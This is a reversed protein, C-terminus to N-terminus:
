SLQISRRAVSWFAPPEFGEHRVVDSCLGSQESTKKHRRCFLRCGGARKSRRGGAVRQAPSATPHRRQAATKDAMSLIDIKVMGQLFFPSRIPLGKKKPKAARLAAGGKQDFISPRLSNRRRWPKAQPLVSVRRLPVLRWFAPLPLGKPTNDCIPFASKLQGRLARPM